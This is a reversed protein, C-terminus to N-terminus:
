KKLYRLGLLDGVDTIADIARDLDELTHSSSLCFRARALILPTAPYGVVVVAIGRNLMERSFASIKAPYFILLPVVPSGEDGYIVFGENRLRNAFYKSNLALTEIRKRGDEKHITGMIIQICYNVQQLAPFSMTEGYISSHCRYRIYDIIKKSGAIYGGVSGLSKTFTGMLIDIEKPNIGYYDCVGRGRPGLAGISHAEDIYLYFNYKRKLVVLEPLPCITGEMSYLGEAIVFIKKWPDGTGPQGKVIEERLIGELHFMDRHDYLRLKANSIKIGFAISCHNLTDSIVLCGPGALSPIVTSNTAFGIGVILSAETGVFKAVNQETEILLRSQGLDLPSSCVTLGNERICDEVSDTVAGNNQSFGLYNYSGLNLCEIEKGTLKFKVTGPVRRRELLTITRGPTNTSPRNFVDVCRFYVWRIFLGNFGELFTSLRDKEQKVFLAKVKSYLARPALTESLFGAIFLVAYTFVVGFGAALPPKPCERRISKYKLALEELMADCRGESYKHKRPVQSGVEELNSEALGDDGYVGSLGLNVGYDQPCILATTGAM